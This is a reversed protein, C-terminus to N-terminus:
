RDAERLAARVCTVLRRQEAATTVRLREYEDGQLKVDAYIDDGDEHFHLFGRSRRYFIGRKREVLGNITRIQVLLPELGDLRDPTVHRM